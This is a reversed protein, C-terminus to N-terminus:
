PADGPISPAASVVAEGGGPSSLAREAIEM